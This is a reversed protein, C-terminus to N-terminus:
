FCTAGCKLSRDINRYEKVDCIAHLYYKSISPALHMTFIVAGSAAWKNTTEQAPDTTEANAANSCECVM